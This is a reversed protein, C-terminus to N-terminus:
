IDEKQDDQSQITTDPNKVPNIEELNWDTKVSIPDSINTGREDVVGFTIKNITKCDRYFLVRMTDALLKQAVDQTMDAGGLEEYGKRLLPYAFHAGFGTAVYNDTYTTGFLDTYGLYTRSNGSSDKIM